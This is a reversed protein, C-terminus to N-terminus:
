VLATKSKQKGSTIGFDCNAAFIYRLAFYDFLYEFKRIYPIISTLVVNPM